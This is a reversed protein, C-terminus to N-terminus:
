EKLDRYITLCWQGAHLVKHANDKEAYHGRTIGEHAEALIRPIKHELVYRGLIIYAGM